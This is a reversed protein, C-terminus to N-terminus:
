STPRVPPSACCGKGSGGLMVPPHPKQVPKPVSIADRLHYFEGDFTTRDNTWLQKIVRVSEDLMRLRPQIEPFSAGMMEFELKTWGSGIGLIARGGSLHDLTTTASATTGPHRFLNCLVLAGIRVKSTAAAIAGLLTMAEWAPAGDDLGGGGRQEYAWHDPVYLTSFGLDDAKAPSLWSTRHPFGRSSSASTWPAESHTLGVGSDFIAPRPPANRGSTHEHYCVRGVRGHPLDGDRCGVDHSRADEEENEQRDEEVHDAEPDHDREQREVHPRQASRGLDDPQDEPREGQRLHDGRRDEAPEGVANAAPGDNQHAEDAVRQRHQEERDRHLAREECPEEDRTHEGPRRRPVEGGALRRHCVDGVARATGRPHPAYAGADTEPEHDTRHESAHQAADMGGSWRQRCAGEDEEVEGADRQEHGLGSAGRHLALDRGDLPIRPRQRLRDGIRTDQAHHRHVEERKKAHRAHLHRQRQQHVGAKAPALPLYPM